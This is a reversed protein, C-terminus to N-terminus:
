KMIRCDFLPGAVADDRIARLTVTVLEKGATLEAPIRYSREVYQPGWNHINEFGVKRGDIEIDFSHNYFRNGWYTCYSDRICM